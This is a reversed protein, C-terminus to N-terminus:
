TAPRGFLRRFFRGISSGFARLVLPLISIPEKERAAAEATAQAPAAASAAALAGAQAELREKACAVFQQFLQHSIDPIMGRGFQMIRGSVEVGAEVTVETEGHSLAQLRSLMSGKAMGGGGGGTERGEAVMRVSYTKEDV